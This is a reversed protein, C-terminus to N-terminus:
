RRLYRGGKGGNETLANVNVIEGNEEGVVGNTRANRCVEETMFNMHNRKVIVLSLHAMYRRLRPFKRNVFNDVFWISLFTFLLSLQVKKRKM